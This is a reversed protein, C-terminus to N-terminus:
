DIREKIVDDEKIEGILLSSDDSHNSYNSKVEEENFNAYCYKCLSLCSNYAGIDVTQVCNCNENDRHTRRKFKASKNLENM